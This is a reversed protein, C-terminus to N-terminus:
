PIFKNPAKVLRGSRTVTGEINRIALEENSQNENISSDSSRVVDDHSVIGGEDEDIVLDDYKTYAKGTKNLVCNSELNNGLNIKPKLFKSNRRVIKNNNKIKILYSRPQELKKLIVAECWEKTFKDQYWVEQTEEFVDVAKATRNYWKQQREKYKKNIEMPKVVCPYYSESNVWLLKTRLERSMLLQAPSYNLGAIPTNRYNLLYLEIDTKTFKSKKLMQKAVEVGKEALGNGKPYNPSSTIAEFGWAKAFNKFIYSNFPNNDSVTQQPIGFQSFVKKLEVIVSDATKDRLKCLELWRSYYDYIILYNQGQLEAIDLAIKMFPLDPITHSLMPEKCKSKSFKLCVHCASAFNEIYSKMGPWYYFNRAKLYMKTMGIHTEHLSNVILKRLVKPIIVRDGFYIVGGNVIIESRQNFYHILEQCKEAKKNFDKWGLQYNKIVKSLVEDTSTEKVLEEFREKSLRIEYEKVTHVVENIENDDQVRKSIINRSLLDAIYMDKGPIYKLTFTYPILKLKLRKLRNNHIRNIQKNIISVLPLHDTFIITDKKGYIYNHFKKCSETVALFEKEIQAWSQETESLSRSFYSLPKKNQMICCGIANQSADCQIEVPLMPDYTNLVTIEAILQKINNFSSDHKENWSWVVDKKLLERLPSSIEALNPIFERLYNVIGLVMQLEKKNNPHKLNIISEVRNKDPKIGEENFMFGIYKVEKVCLQLKDANFKINLLRARELVKELIEDHEDKTSACILIDDFYLVVGGIGGFYRYMLKQFLEPASAIGFPVRKFRFIGNPTSFNFFKSSDKELVMHYFGCKVDLVTFIKKNTLEIKIEELSPIQYVERIIYKNLESPDLCIRLSKDSKEVIVMNSVWECPENVEEIIDLEVLEDLTERLKNKITYPIRRAPCIKPIASNNLKIVISDPFSGMGSFVDINKNIFKDKEASNIVGLHNLNSEGILKKNNVSNVNNVYGLRKSDALGLIPSTETNVVIFQTNIKWKNNSVEVNVRGLPKIKFGGFAEIKLNSSVLKLKLEKCLRIPLINVEAGTDIKIGVYFNNISVNEIWSNGHSKSVSLVVLKDLEEACNINFVQNSNEDKNTGGHKYSNINSKCCKAFHNFKNCKICKKGYAFCENIKHNSACRKCNKIQSQDGFKANKKFKFNVKKDDKVLLNIKVEDQLIQRNLEAQESAQCQKVVKDLEINERLLRAQLDKNQLGIVIQTRLLKKEMSEFSCSAVLAKLDTYFVDFPENELQKRSFFRFHEMVENKQPICYEEFANLVEQAKVPKINFTNYLRLAEPGLLNLVRAIKIKEDKTDTETATFYISVEQKFRRFNEELNGELKLQEPKNFENAM